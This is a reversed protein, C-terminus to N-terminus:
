KEVSKAAKPIDLDINEMNGCVCGPGVMLLEMAGSQSLINAPFSGNEVGLEMSKACSFLHTSNSPQSICTRGILGGSFFRWVGHSNQSM